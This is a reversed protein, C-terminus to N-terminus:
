LSFLHFVGLILFNTASKDIVQRLVKLAKSIQHEVTKISVELQDAIEQYTLNSLEDVSMFTEPSSGPKILFKSERRARFKSIKKNRKKICASCNGYVYQDKDWTGIFPFPINTPALLRLQAIGIM